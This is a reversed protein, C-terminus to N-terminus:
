VLGEVRELGAVVHHNPDGIGAYAFLWTVRYVTGTADDRVHDLRDLPCPDAHLRYETVTQEGGRVQQEGAARVQPVDIVARVGTVVEALDGTTTGSYPEAYQDAAPARLITITTTAHPLSM